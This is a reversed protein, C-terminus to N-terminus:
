GKLIYFSPCNPNLVRRGVFMGMFEEGRQVQLKSLINNTILAFVGWSSFSVLNYDKRAM